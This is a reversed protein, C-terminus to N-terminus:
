FTAATPKDLIQPLTAIKELFHSPRTCGTCIMLHIWATPPVKIGVTLFSLTTIKALTCVCLEDIRLLFPRYPQLLLTACPQQYHALGTRSCRLSSTHMVSPLALQLKCSGFLMCETIWLVLKVVPSM